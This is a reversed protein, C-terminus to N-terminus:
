LSLKIIELYFPITGFESSTTATTAIEYNFSLGSLTNNITAIDGQITTIDGQITTIDSQIITIDDQITTIKNQINIINQIILDWHILLM